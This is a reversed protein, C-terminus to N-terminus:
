PTFALISTILTFTLSSYCFGVKSKTRQIEEDKRRAGLEAQKLGIKGRELQEVTHHLEIELNKNEELSRGCTKCGESILSSNRSEKRSIHHLLSKLEGVAQSLQGAKNFM